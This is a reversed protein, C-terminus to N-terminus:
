TIYSLTFPLIAGFTNYGLPVAGLYLVFDQVMKQEGNSSTRFAMRHM